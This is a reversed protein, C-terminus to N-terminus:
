EYYIFCVEQYKEVVSGRQIAGLQRRSHIASEKMEASGM